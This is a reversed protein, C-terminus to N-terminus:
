KKTVKEVLKFIIIIAFFLSVETATDVLDSLTQTIGIFAFVPYLVVACLFPSLVIVLLGSWNIDKLKELINKISM